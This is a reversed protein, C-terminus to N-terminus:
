CTTSRLYPQAGTLCRHGRNLPLVQGRRRRVQRRQGHEGDSGEREDDDAPFGKCSGDSDDGESYSMNYYLNILTHPRYLTYMYSLIFKFYKSDEIKEPIASLGYCM